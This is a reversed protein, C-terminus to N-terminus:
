QYSIIEKGTNGELRLSCSNGYKNNIVITFDDCTGDPRFVLQQNSVSAIQVGAPLCRNQNLSDNLPTFDNATTLDNGQKAIWYQNRISDFSVCYYSSDNLAYDRAARLTYLLQNCTTELLSKHGIRSMAPWSVAFLLSLIVGVLCVEVLTFGGNAKGTPLTMTEVRQATLDTLICITIKTTFVRVIIFTLNGGPIM